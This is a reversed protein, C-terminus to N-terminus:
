LMNVLSPVLHFIANLNLDPCDPEVVVAHCAIEGHVVLQRGAGATEDVGAPKWDILLGFLTSQTSKASFVYAWSEADPQFVSRRRRRHM